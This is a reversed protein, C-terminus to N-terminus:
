TGVSWGEQACLLGGGSRVNQITVWWEQCKLVRYDSDSLESCMKVMCFSLNKSFLFNHPM